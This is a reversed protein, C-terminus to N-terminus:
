LNVLFLFLFLWIKFLLKELCLKCFFFIALTVFSTLMTTTASLGLSLFTTCTSTTSSTPIGVVVIIM